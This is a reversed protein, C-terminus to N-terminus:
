CDSSSPITYNEFLVYNLGGLLLRLNKSFITNSVFLYMTSNYVYASPTRGRRVVLRSDNSPPSRIPGWGKFVVSTAFDHLSEDNGCYRNYSKNDNDCKDAVLFGVRNLRTDPWIRTSAAYLCAHPWM